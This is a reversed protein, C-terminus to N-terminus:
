NNKQYIIELHCHVYLPSEILFLGVAFELSCLSFVKQNRPYFLCFSSSVPTYHPIFTLSIFWYLLALSLDSM